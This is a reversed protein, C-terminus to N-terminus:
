STLGHMHMSISLFYVNLHIIGIYIYLNKKYIYFKFVISIYDNKYKTLEISFWTLINNPLFHLNDM